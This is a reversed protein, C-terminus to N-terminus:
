QCGTPDHEGPVSASISGRSRPLRNYQHLVGSVDMDQHDSRDMVAPILALCGSGVDGGIKGPVADRDSDIPQFAAFSWHGVQKALARGLQGSIQKNHPSVTMGTCPFPYETPNGLGHDLRCANGHQKGASGPYSPPALRRDTVLVVTKWTLDDGMRDPQIEPEREAQPQDLFHQQLAANDNGIFREPLPAAFETRGVRLPQASLLRRSLVDPMQDLHHNGDAVPLISKPAGNVLVAIM